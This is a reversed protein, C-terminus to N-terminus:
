EVSEKYTGSISRSISGFLRSANAFLIGDIKEDSLRARHAALKIARLQEYYFFTFDVVHRSDFISTGIEVDEAMLYAYQNNIEVSKGRLCAIPADSGFLIRDCPFNRFAYELVGEHNVMATDIYANPCAAIGELLDVVGKLYYARGIHAFIIRAGPYRRCLRVMQEQNVPDALRKSGPIHLTIILGKQDAYRMQEEPLMDEITVEHVPKGYVLDQYPKYGVLGNTEIRRVVAEITDMPSVLALGFYRRRDSIRGTYDGSHDLDSEPGPLGFSNLHLEKGPLWLEAWDLMQKLTFTCCFNKFCSKNPFQWGPVLCSSDFLHVHADFIRAPLFDRLERMYVGLDGEGDNM